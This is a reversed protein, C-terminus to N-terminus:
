RSVPGDEKIWLVNKCMEVICMYTSLSLTLKKNNNNRSPYQVCHMTVIVYAIVLVYNSHM